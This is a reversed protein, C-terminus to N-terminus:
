PRIPARLGRALDAEAAIFGFAAWSPGAVVREFIEKAKNTDGNCLYWNGVGYGQTAIQVGDTTSPALVADPNLIGKYMLMRKHYATNELIDMKEQIPDLLEKIDSKRGLRRYTMYLWDSTAVLMDDNVRSVKLGEIYRVRASEFDGKLYYALGLHYWINSQLTSRPKGSSNPAGDPEIADPQGKILTTAKELDSIARDFERVTIYRHGRHRYLPAFNPHREIGKSFAAIADRYRGLYALRRGVWVIREPDDPQKELEAQAQALNAELKARQEAPLEPAYLPKGSLSTAEISAQPQALTMSRGAICAAVILAATTARRLNSM